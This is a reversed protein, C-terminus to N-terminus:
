LRRAIVDPHTHLILQAGDPIMELQRLPSRAAFAEVTDLRVVPDHAGHILIQECRAADAADSWDRTVHIADGAFAAPGQAVSAHFGAYLIARIEPDEATRRDRSDDPYLRRLFRDERGSRIMAVGGRVILPLVNPTFRATWAMVRQRASMIRFQRASQIPVGGSVCVLRTVREPLRRAAEYGYLSGAMHGLITVAGLELRDLVQALDAAVTAPLTEPSPAPSARGFGPRLPVVLRLGRESLRRAFAETVRGEDLMGHLLLVPRGDPPGQLAVPQRRGDDLTLEEVRRAEDGPGLRRPATEPAAGPETPLALTAVHRVVEVKSRMGMKRLLTKIQTQVTALSSGRRAAIAAPERGLAVGELVELEAPTLSFAEGLQRAMQPTWLFAVQSLRASPTEGGAGAPLAELSFLRGEGQPTDLRLLLLREPSRGAAHDDEAALRAELRSLAEALRALGEPDLGLARSAEALTAGPLRGAPLEFAARAADNAALLGRSSVIFAPRPEDKVLQEPDLQPRPRLRRMLEEAQRFHREVSPDILGELRSPVEADIRSDLLPEAAASLYLGWTRMTEDYRLPDIPLGYLTEILADRLEPSVGSAAPPSAPDPAALPAHEGSAGAGAQTATQPGSAPARDAERGAGPDPGEAEPTPGTRDADRASEAGPSEGKSPGVDPGSGLKGARAEGAPSAPRRARRGRDTM